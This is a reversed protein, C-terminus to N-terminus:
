LPAPKLLWWLLFALGALVVSTAVNGVIVAGQVLGRLESRTMDGVKRIESM